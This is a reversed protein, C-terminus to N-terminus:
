VGIDAGLVMRSRNWVLQGKNISLTFLVFKFALLVICIYIYIDRFRFIM